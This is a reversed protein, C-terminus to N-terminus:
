DGAAGTEGSGDLNKAVQFLPKFTGEESLRKASQYCIEVCQDANERIPHGHSPAVIQPDFKDLHQQIKDRVKEPDTYKLWQLSRGNYQSMQRETLNTEMEDEFKLSDTRYHPYGFSDVTCMWGTSHELIWATAPSDMFIPEIFEVTYGGLDITHGYQVRTADELHHIEAAASGKDSGLLEANPYENLVAYSNGAHPAEDHSVVLYDLERGDLAKKLEEVMRETSAPSLTDFLLTEEHGKFLFANDNIRLDRGPEYWDAGAKQGEPHETLWDRLPDLEITEEFWHVSEGDGIELSRHEPVTCLEQSRTDSM